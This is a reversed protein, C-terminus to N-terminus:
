AKGIQEPTPDKSPPLAGWRNENYHSDVANMTLHWRGAIQKWDPQKGEDICDVGHFMSPFCSVFSGLPAEEELHVKTNADKLVFFGGTEYDVGRQTMEAGFIMKQNRYPDCHTTITGAGTPYHTIQFRDVILDSPINKAYGEPSLGSLIKIISWTTGLDTFLHLPDNDWPHFFFGHTIATYGDAPGIKRDVVAHYDPCGDLLKHSSPPTAQGYQHARKKLDKLYEPRVVQTFIFVDGGYLSTVLDRAFEPDGSLVGDRLTVFPMTTITRVYHPPKADRLAREWEQSYLNM